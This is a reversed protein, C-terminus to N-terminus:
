ALLSHFSSLVLDFYSLSGIDQRVGLAVQTSTQDSWLIHLEGIKKGAEYPLEQLKLTMKEITVAEDDVVIAGVKELFILEVEQPKALKLHLTEYSDNIEFISEYKVKSFGYEILQKSEANRIKSDNEHMVVSILRIDNRKASLTICSKAEQTFGTKLGDVGEVTQILKNTNVLWFPNASNERVYADYTSTIALMEEKGVRILEQGILAMDKACSYHNEDHLGTTNMFHTNELKLEQAKENMMSVFRSVSGGVKEAMAVMADNASAICIAKLLDAVSMQENVELYIQSGGMSAANESVTVLEEMKLQGEHLAEYILILGMMKTMSAPYYKETANKEYLVKGTSYEMLYIAPAQLTLEAEAHIPMISFCFCLFGIWWYKM